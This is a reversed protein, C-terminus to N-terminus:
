YYFLRTLGQLYYHWFTKWIDHSLTRQMVLIDFYQPNDAWLIYTFVIKRTICKTIQRLVKSAMQYYTKCSKKISMKSNYM